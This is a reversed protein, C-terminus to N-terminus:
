PSSFDHISVLHVPQQLALPGKVLAAGGQRHLNPQLREPPQLCGDGPIFAADAVRQLGIQALAGKFTIHAFNTQHLRLDTPKQAVGPFQGPPFPYGRRQRLEGGATIHLGRGPAIHQHQGRPVVGEQQCQIGKRVGNRRAIRHDEFGAGIRGGCTVHDGLQHGFAEWGFLRRHDGAASRFVGSQQVLLEVQHEEGSTLRYAFLYKALAGLMEGRRHQFQAAFAGADHVFARLDRQRCLADDEALEEVAALGAHCGIIHQAVPRYLVRQHGPDLLLDGQLEPRTRQVVGVVAPDDGPLMKVADAAEDVPFLGDAAALGVFAGAADRGGHQVIDSPRVGDHLLLDEARHQRHQGKLVDPLDGGQQGFLLLRQSQVQEGFGLGAYIQDGGAALVAAATDVIRDDMQGGRLHAKAAHSFAAHAGVEAPGAELSKGMVLARHIFLRPHIEGHPVLRVATEM